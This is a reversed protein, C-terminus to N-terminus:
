SPPSDGSGAADALIEELRDLLVARTFRRLYSRRGNEALRRREAPAMAHLARLAQAMSQADGPASCLGADAEGVVDASDGAVGCLIPKACAMYAMLKSPIQSEFMPDPNLHMLLVEALALYRHMETMPQRPIFRVNALAREGAIRQLRAQDEGDGLFVLQLDDLDSLLAAAELATDLGQAPGLNGAYIVNFKGELGHERALEPEPDAPFFVTEDAWDGLLELKEPAVGKAELRRRMGPSNLCIRHSRRYVARELVGISRALWPGIRAGAAILGEPWLDSMWSVVPARHLIGLARIPLWNTLPPMYVLIVDADFRRTLWAGLSAASLAFTSYNLARKAASMSHDPYLPVRLISVGDVAEWQRWRLRYGDYVRGFPHCPFGTLVQVQHGRLSLFRAAAALNTPATRVEPWYFQSLLLIRM